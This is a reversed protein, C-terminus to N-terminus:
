TTKPHGNQRLNPTKQKLFKEYSLSFKRPYLLNGSHLERCKKGRLWFGFFPWRLSSAHPSKEFGKPRRWKWSQFGGHGWAL